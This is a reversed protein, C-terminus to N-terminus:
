KKRFRKAIRVVLFTVALIAALHVIGQWEVSGGKIIHTITAVTGGLGITWLAVTAGAGMVTQSQEFKGPIYHIVMGVVIFAMASLIGIGILLSAIVEVNAM